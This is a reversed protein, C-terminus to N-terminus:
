ALFDLLARAAVGPADHMWMHGADAIRVSRAGRPAHRTMADAAARFVPASRAGGVVLLPMSLSRFDEISLEVRRESLTGLLTHANDLFVERQLPDFREFAGAEGCVADFLAASAAHEDTAATAAIQKMRAGFEALLPAAGPDDALLAGFITEGLVLKAVLAPEDRAVFAAVFSGYSHGVLHVPGAGLARLFAALDRAHSAVTYAGAPPVASAPWHFTRSYSVYRQERAIADRLVEHTRLDGNAGHVFVVSAGRGDAVFPLTM